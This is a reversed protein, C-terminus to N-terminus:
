KGPANAVRTATFNRRVADEGEGWTASGRIINGNVRGDFRVPQRRGQVEENSTFLVQTGRMRGDQIDRETGTAPAMTGSLMQYKQELHLTRDRQLGSGEVRVRWTGATQAPIVWYYINHGRVVQVRKQEDPKWDGMDFDHSVIRSGPRLESLLTPRLRVNIDPLLYLTVVSAPSIDMEFLDRVFFEVREAVGAAEANQKSEEIRRPDLDVGVGSAGHDRAASIVIRGDGCGLDYVVDKDTVAAMKLMEAVVEHPTPVYPVDLQREQARVVAWVGAIAVILFVPLVWLVLRKM